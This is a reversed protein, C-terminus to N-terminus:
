PQLFLRRTSNSIERFHEIQINQQILLALLQNGNFNLPTHIFMATGQDEVQLNPITKLTEYLTARNGGCRLEFVNEQRKAGFEAVKGNYIAEGNKIFIINDSISEVEQLQQSSLIIAVPYRISAALYRLDQLFLSRTNVDLNALPEDLVLLKPRTVLAKALEFRLRYGTSIENWTSYEYKTLGLRHILFEVLETNEKGLIGHTSANFQLNTKLLGAWSSNQQQIYAIQQKVGYWDGSETNLCPYNISGHDRALDGAILRLLTTKGNGNEGVVGTLEGLKLKLDLPPLKFKYKPSTYTKSLQKAEFAINYNENDPQQIPINLPNQKLHQLNNEIQKLLQLTEQLIVDQQNNPQQGSNDLTNYKARLQISKNKLDNPLAFDVFFDMLRRTTRSLDNESALLKLEDTREKLSEM